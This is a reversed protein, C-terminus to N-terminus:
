VVLRPWRAWQHLLTRIRKGIVTRPIFTFLGIEGMQGMFNTVVAVYRLRNSLSHVTLSAM